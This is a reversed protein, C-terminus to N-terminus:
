GRRMRSWRRWLRPGRGATGPREGWEAWWLANNEVDFLLGELPWELMARIAVDDSRWDYGRRPRRPRLLDVLDPPFVLGYRAQADDLESSTYGEAWPNGGKGAAEVVALPRVIAATM